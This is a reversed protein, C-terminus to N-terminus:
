RFNDLTRCVVRSSAELVTLEEPSCNAFFGYIYRNLRDDIDHCMAAGQPTFNIIVNRRDAPNDVREFLGLKVLKNVFISAGPSTLGTLAMIRALNCPLSLRVMMLHVFQQQPIEAAYRRWEADLFNRRTVELMRCMKKFVEIRDLQNEPKGSLPPRPPRPAVPAPVPGPPPADNM